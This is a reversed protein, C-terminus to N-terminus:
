KMLHIHFGLVGFGKPPELTVNDEVWGKPTNPFSDKYGVAILDDILGQPKENDYGYIIVLSYFPVKENKTVFEIEM